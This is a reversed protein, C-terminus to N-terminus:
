RMAIVAGDWIGYNVLLKDDELIKGNHYFNIAGPITASNGNDRNLENLSSVVKKKAENITLETPVEVNFCENNYIISILIKQPIKM